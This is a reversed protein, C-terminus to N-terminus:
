KRSAGGGNSIRSEYIAGVHSLLYTPANPDAKTLGKLDHASTCGTGVLISDTGGNVGLMIDTDLRDGIMVTRDAKLNYKDLIRDMLWKSPKGVNIAERGVSCEIAAVACGNGQPPSFSSSACTLGRTGSCTATSLALWPWACLHKGPVTRDHLRDFADKNTAVFVINPNKQLHLSATSMKVFNFSLDWGCVVAGISPDPDVTLFEAESSFM